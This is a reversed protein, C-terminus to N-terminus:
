RPRVRRTGAGFRHAAAGARVPPPPLDKGRARHRAERVAPAGPCRGLGHARGRRSARGARTGRADSIPVFLLRLFIKGAPETVLKVFQQLAPADGWAMHAAVGLLVGLALGALMRYSQDLKMARCYRPLTRPRAIAM